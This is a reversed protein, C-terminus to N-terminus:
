RLAVSRVAARRYRRAVAAEDPTMGLIGSAAADGLRYTYGGITESQIGSSGATQQLSRTVMGAIAYRVDDPIDDYGAAYTVQVTGTWTDAVAAAVNLQQGVWDNLAVLGVGDFTWTAIASGATGDANILRVATVRTAPRQPLTVNGRDDVRLIQTYTDATFQRGGAEAVFRASAANLLGDLRAEEDATLTRGLLAEVDDQTALATVTLSREPSAATDPPSSSSV